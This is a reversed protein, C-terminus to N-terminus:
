KDDVIDIVGSLERVEEDDDDDDDDEENLGLM